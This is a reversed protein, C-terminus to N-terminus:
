TMCDCTIILYIKKKSTKEIKYKKGEKRRHRKKISSFFITLKSSYLNGGNPWATDPATPDVM